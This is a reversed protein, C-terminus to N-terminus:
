FSEDNLMASAPWGKLKGGNLQISDALDQLMKKVLPHGPKKTNVFIRIGGKKQGTVAFSYVPLGGEKPLEFGAVCDGLKHVAETLATLAAEPACASLVDTSMGQAIKVLTFNKIGVSLGLQESAKQDAYAPGVLGLCLAAVWTANMRIM